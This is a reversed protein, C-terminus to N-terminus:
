IFDEKTYFDNWVQMMEHFPLKKYELDDSITLCNISETADAVVPKWVVPEIELCNPNSTLAFNYWMGIMRQICRFERSHTNLVKGVVVHFLYSLDDAHSTGRTSSGSFVVRYHNFYESDFDFYYCYTRTRLSYKQRARITRFAPHWFCRHAMLVLYSYLHDDINPQQGGFYAEKLRLGMEKLKTGSCSHKIDNPLLNVFDSLENIMFPHNKTTNYFLLGESSNGGIILPIENSWANALLEKIPKSIVCNDSVYPEVVPCFFCMLHDMQEDKTLLKLDHIVLNRSSKKMLFKYVDKENSHGKYGIRCAFKYGWSHDDTLAWPCLGSGSQIIAKHFLGETQPTLMLYHTSAGGASEGFLTINNPDGNFNQINEKVWKM